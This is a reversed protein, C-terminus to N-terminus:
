SQSTRRMKKVVVVPINQSEDFSTAYSRKKARDERKSLHEKKVVSSKEATSSAAVSKTKCRKKHPRILEKSASTHSGGVNKDTNTGRSKSLAVSTVITEESTVKMLGLRLLFTPSVSRRRANEVEGFDANAKSISGM